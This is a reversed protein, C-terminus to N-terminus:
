RIYHELSARLNRRDEKDKPYTKEDWDAFLKIGKKVLGKLINDRVNQYDDKEFGSLTTFNGKNDVNTIFGLRILQHHTEDRIFNTFGEGQYDNPSKGASEPSMCWEAYVRCSINDLFNDPTLSLEEHPTQTYIEMLTRADEAPLFIVRDGESTKVVTRKARYDNIRKVVPVDPCTSEFIEEERPEIPM